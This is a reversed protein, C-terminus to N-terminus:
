EAGRSETGGPEDFQAQIAAAREWRDESQDGLYMDPGQGENYLHPQTDGLEIIHQDKRVWTSSLLSGHQDLTIQLVQHEPGLTVNPGCSEFAVTSGPLAFIRSQSNILCQRHEAGTETIYYDQNPVVTVVTRDDEVPADFVLKFDDGRKSFFRQAQGDSAIVCTWSDGVYTQIANNLTPWQKTADEGMFFLCQVQGAEAATRKPPLNPDLSEAGDQGLIFDNQQGASGFWSDM